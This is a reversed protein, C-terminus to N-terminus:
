ALWKKHRRFIKLIRARNAHLEAVGSHLMGVQFGPAAAGLFRLGVVNGSFEAPSFVTKQQLEAAGACTCPKVSTSFTVIAMRFFSIGMM